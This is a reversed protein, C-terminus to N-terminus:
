TLLRDDPKAHFQERAAQSALLERSHRLDSLVRPMYLTQTILPEDPMFGRLSDAYQSLDQPSIAWGEVTAWGFVVTLNRGERHM